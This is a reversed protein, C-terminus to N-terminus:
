KGEKTEKKNAEKSKAKMRSLKDKISLAPKEAQGRMCNSYGEFRSKRAM